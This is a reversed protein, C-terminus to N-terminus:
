VVGNVPRGRQRRRRKKSTAKVTLVVEMRQQALEARLAVLEARVAQVEGVLAVLQVALENPKM